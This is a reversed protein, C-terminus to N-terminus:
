IDIITCGDFYIGSYEMTNIWKSPLVLKRHRNLFAGMWSFTSNACIGGSCQTMLFLSDEDNEDIISYSIDKLYREAFQLDNTFVSFHTGEPFEKIANKYYNSLDIYLVEKINDYLYDNGRVHLFVTDKINPYKSLIDTNFHLTDKFDNEVHKWHQFCGHIKANEPLIENYYDFEKIEWIPTFDALHYTNKWKSFLGDFHNKPSHHTYPTELTDVCAIKNHKKSLHHAAALQFLQNGLGGTFRCTINGFSEFDKLNKSHIHLTYIPTNEIYWRLLGKIEKKSYQFTHPMIEAEPNSYTFPASSENRPDVGGLWQGYQAPDFIGEFIDANKSFFANSEFPISPLYTILNQNFFTTAIIMENDHIGCTLFYSTLKSLYVIDNCYVIGMIAKTPLAPCSLGNVTSRFKSILEEANFYVMNDNELHFFETINQSICFDELAFLRETTYRWFGNRFSTNLRTTDCFQKHFDTLPIDEIFIHNISISKCKGSHVKSSIFYIPNKPNWVRCQNLASNVYDPFFDEGIHIFIFPIESM